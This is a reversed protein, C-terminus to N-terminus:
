QTNTNPISGACEPKLENQSQNCRHYYRATTVTQYDRAQQGGTFVTNAAFVNVRCCPVM